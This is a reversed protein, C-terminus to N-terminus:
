SRCHPDCQTLLRVSVKFQTVWHGTFKTVIIHKVPPRRRYTYYSQLHFSFCNHTYVQTTKQCYHTKQTLSNAAQGGPTDTLEYIMLTSTPAVCTYNNYMDAQCSTINVNIKHARGFGGVWSGPILSAFQKVQLWQYYLLAPLILKIVTQQEINVLNDFFHRDLNNCSPHM